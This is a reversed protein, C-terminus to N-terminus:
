CALEITRDAPIDPSGRGMALRNVLTCAGAAKARLGPPLIKGLWLMAQSPGATQAWVGGVQEVPRLM